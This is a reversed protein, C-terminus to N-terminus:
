LEIADKTEFYIMKFKPTKVGGLLIAMPFHHRTKPFDGIDQSRPTQVTATNCAHKQSHKRTWSTLGISKWLLILNSINENIEQNGSAMDM